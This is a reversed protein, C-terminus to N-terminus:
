FKYNYGFSFQFAEYTSVVLPYGPTTLLVLEPEIFLQHQKNKLKMGFDFGMHPGFVKGQEYSLGVSGGVLKQNVFNGSDVYIKTFKSWGYAIGIFPSIFLKKSLNFEYAGKVFFADHVNLGNETAGRLFDDLSIGLYRNIYNRDRYINGYHYTDYKFSGKLTNTQCHTYFINLNFGKWIYRGFGASYHYGIAPYLDNDLSIGTKVFLKNKFTRKSNVQIRQGICSSNLFIFIGSRVMFFGIM